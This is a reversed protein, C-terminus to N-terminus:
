VPHICIGNQRLPLIIGEPTPADALSMRISDAPNVTNLICFLICDRHFACQGGNPGSFIRLQRCALFMCSFTKDHQLFTRVGRPNLRFNFIHRIVKRIIICGYMKDALFLQFFVVAPNRVAAKHKPATHGSPLLFVAM